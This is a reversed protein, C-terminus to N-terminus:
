EIFGAGATDNNDDILLFAGTERNERYSDCAIPLLTKVSIRAIDNQRLEAPNPQEELTNPDVRYQIGSALAKVLRTTHRLRYKGGAKMPKPSMWCVTAEFQTRPAPADDIGTIIDGRSADVDEALTLTVSQPAFATTREGDFTFIGTVKTQRGGPLITIQQGLNVRGSAIKGMYGRFDGLEPLPPRNVLQIPFRLHSSDQQEVDITELTEMVTQDTYWPLNEGRQVVMDGQLASIPIFRLDLPGLQQFFAKFDSCIRDYVDKNFDVLDMKNVAVIVHRIGVLHAIYAHRRSQTVLGQRADVLILALDATSAGTVMNRTYQEHGPADAIIFKRRETNFYRYAVDITIGQEREAKLGDTLLAFDIGKGGRRENDRQAASVQDEFAGRADVLLRGILTSKGDDVSGATIFRLLGVSM